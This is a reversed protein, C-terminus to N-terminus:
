KESFFPHTRALAAAEERSHLNMKELIASVHHDTTKPSIHLHNSIKTNSLGKVLLSLIEVQRETLGFPNERTSSRPKRPIKKTRTNQLGERLADAPLHAGLREFMKLALLQAQADGDALARAQEYPCSLREWEDAAAQWQGAIQLTFPKAMWDFQEPQGGCKWLWFAAEGALWPHKKSVALNYLVRVESLARECNGELWAEEALAARVPAINEFHDSVSAIELARMLLDFAETEGQRARLRGLAVLAPLRNHVSIAPHAIIENAAEVVERWRGLYMYTMAQCSLLYFRVLDLDREACYTIGESLYFEATEFRYLDCAVSGLNAYVTAVRAELGAKQAIDLCRKLYESGRDFDTSLWNSGLTDYAMALIRADGFQEALAVAKEALFAAESLNRNISELLAQNRYALALEKGPPHKELIQIAARCCKQAENGEGHTLLAMTLYALNEGEKIPNAVACWLEIAKRRSAITEDQRDILNSEWAYAELLNAHDSLPLTEAYKLALAYLSAAARHASAASAQQAAIPAFELVSARDGAAEAHHALRSMDQRTVPDSRLSDLVLRHLVLLRQPSLTDLFAQHTLEHRFSLADGQSQLIGAAMCEELFHAEAGTVEALLWSEIRMGIVAAAQLVAEASPSLRATRALIADRVNLPIKSIPNALIETIFFPNGGTKAHLDFVNIPRDNVLARVGDESLPKLLIRQASPSTVLDGLVRRLPHQPSLEDDRYTLLLLIPIRMIRRGLFRLLDLTAEDAWHVDEFVVIATQQQLAGLVITFIETNQSDSALLEPLDKHLQAAMDHLPGFPRPTFLSDCAGWHVPLSASHRGTFAEILSTKGIGAEGSVFVIRGEGAVVQALTTELEAIYPERELLKM